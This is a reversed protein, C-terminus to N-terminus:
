SIEIDGLKQNLENKKLEESEFNLIVSKCKWTRVQEMIRSLPMLSGIFKDNDKNENM